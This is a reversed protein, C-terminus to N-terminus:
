RTGCKKVCENYADACGRRENNCGRANCEAPIQAMCSKNKEECASLCSNGQAVVFSGAHIAPGSLPGVHQTQAGETAYALTITTAVALLWFLSARGSKMIVSWM